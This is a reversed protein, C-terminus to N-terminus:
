LDFVDLHDLKVDRDLLDATGGITVSQQAWVSYANDFFVGDSDQDLPRGNSCPVIRASQMTAIAM